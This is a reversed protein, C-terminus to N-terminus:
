EEAKESPLDWIAYNTTTAYLGGFELAITRDSSIQHYEESMVMSLFHQRSPYKVLLFMHPSQDDDGIITHQVTGQWLVKGGAKQLLPLVNNSYRQYAVAGSEEANGTLTKFRLINVMVLPTDNPASMLQKIQQETPLVHNELM